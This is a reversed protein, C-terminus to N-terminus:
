FRQQKGEKLRKNSPACIGIIDLEHDKILKQWSVFVKSNPYLHSLEWVKETTRDYLARIECFSGKLVM